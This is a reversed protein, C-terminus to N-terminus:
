NIPSASDDVSRARIAAACALTTIDFRHYEGPAHSLDPPKLDLCARACRERELRVAEDAYARMQDATYRHSLGTGGGHVCAAEPLPPLKHTSPDTSM